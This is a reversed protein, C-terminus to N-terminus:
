MRLSNKIKSLQSLYGRNLLEKLKNIITLGEQISLNESHGAKNRILRIDEWISNFQMLQQRDFYYGIYNAHIANLNNQTLFGELACKSMGIPLPKWSQTGRDEENLNTIKGRYRISANKGTEYRCFYDPFRIALKERLWQVISHNIENEFVKALPMIASSFDFDTETEFMKLVKYGSLLFEYSKPELFQKYPNLELSPRDIEYKALIQSLIKTMMDEYLVLVENEEIDINQSLIINQRQVQLKIEKVEQLLSKIKYKAVNEAGQIDTERDARSANLSFAEALIQAFSKELISVTQFKSNHRVASILLDDSQFESVANLESLDEKLTRKSTSFWVVNGDIFDNTVVICPLASEPIGLDKSLVFVSADENYGVGIGEQIAKLEEIYGRNQRQREVMRKFEENPKVLTFFILSGRSRADLLHLNNELYNHFEKHKTPSHLIFSFLRFQRLSKYQWSNKGNRALEYFVRFSSIPAGM